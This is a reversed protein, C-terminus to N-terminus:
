NNEGTTFPAVHLPQFRQCGQTESYYAISKLKIAFSKRKHIISTL